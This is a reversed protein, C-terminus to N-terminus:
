RKGSKPLWKNFEEQAKILKEKAPVKRKWYVIIFIAWIFAVLLWILLWGRSSLYIANVERFLIFLLGIIGVTWGWIQWKKWVKKIPGLARKNQRSSIVALVISSVFILLLIIRMLWSFGMEPYPSFLYHFNTLKSLDM